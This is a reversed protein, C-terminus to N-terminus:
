EKKGWHRIQTNAQPRGKQVMDELTTYAAGETSRGLVKPARNVPRISHMISLDPYQERLDRVDHMTKLVYQWRAIDADGEIEATVASAPVTTLESSTRPRPPLVLAYYQSIKQYHWEVGAIAALAVIEDPPSTAGCIASDICAFAQKITELLMDSPSHAAALQVSDVCAECHLQEQRANMNATTSVRVRIVDNLYSYNSEVVLDPRMQRAVSVVRKITDGINAATMVTTM